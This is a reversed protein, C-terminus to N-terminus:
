QNIYDHMFDEDNFLALKLISQWFNHGFAERERNISEAIIARKTHKDTIIKMPELINRFSTIVTDAADSFRRFLGLRNYHETLLNFLKADIGPNQLYFSVEIIQNGVEINAFLYQVDPLQDLYLNLTTRGAHNRWNNNKRTNCDGCCCILNKPHVNYESFDAQPVLHDLTNVDNITCHQCKVVRGSETTTLFIRLKIMLESSYKYLQELDTKEPNIYGKANLLELTNKEFYNDYEEYLSKIDEDITILRAKLTKDRKKKCVAKYFVFADRDYVKCNRM